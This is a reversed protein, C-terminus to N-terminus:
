KFIMISQSWELKVNFVGVVGYISIAAVTWCEAASVINVDGIRCAGVRIRVAVQAFRVDLQRAVPIARTICSAHKCSTIFELRM